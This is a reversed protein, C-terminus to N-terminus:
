YAAIQDILTELDIHIARGEEMGVTVRDGKEGPYIELMTEDSNTDKIVVIEGRGGYMDNTAEITIDPNENKSQLQQEIDSASLMTLDGDLLLDQQQPGEGVPM